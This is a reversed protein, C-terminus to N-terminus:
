AMKWNCEQWGISEQRAAKSAMEIKKGSKEEETRTGLPLCFWTLMESCLNEIKYRSSHTYAQMCLVFIVRSSVKSRSYTIIWSHQRFPSLTLAYQVNCWHRRRHCHIQEYIGSKFALAINICSSSLSASSFVYSNCQFFFFRWGSITISLLPLVMAQAAGSMVIRNWRSLTHPILCGFSIWITNWTLLAHIHESHTHPQYNVYICVILM